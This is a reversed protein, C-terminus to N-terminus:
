RLKLSYNNIGRSLIKEKKKNKDIVFKFKRGNIKEHKRVSNPVGERNM